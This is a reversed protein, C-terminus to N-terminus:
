TKGSVRREFGKRWEDSLHPCKALALDDALNRPKAYMIENARQITMGYDDRDVLEIVDGAQITGTQLVRFYWGTRGFKQVEAGLKEINNKRALKWCPQRPQSVQLRCSGIQFVDGICVDSEVQGEITLNEGFCGPEVSWEPFAKQWAAFHDGSYGHVAKDVGGHNARDAQQDGALGHPLVEVAGDVVVKEIASQWTKGTQHDTYSRIKGAQISRVIAPM